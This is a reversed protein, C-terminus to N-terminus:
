SLSTFRYLGITKAALRRRVYDGRIRHKNWDVIGLMQRLCNLSKRKDPLGRQTTGATQTRWQGNAVSLRRARTRNHVRYGPSSRAIGRTPGSPRCRLSVSSHVPGPESLLLVTQDLNTRHVSAKITWLGNSARTSTRVIAKGHTTKFSIREAGPRDTSPLSPYLASEQTIPDM